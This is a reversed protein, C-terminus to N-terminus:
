WSTTPSEEYPLELDPSERGCFTVREFETTACGFAEITVDLDVARAFRGKALLPSALWSSLPPDGPEMIQVRSLIASHSRGPRWGRWSPPESPVTTLVYHLRPRGAPDHVALAAALSDSDSARDPAGFLFFLRSERREGAVVTFSAFVASEGLTAEELRWSGEPLTLRLGDAPVTARLFVPDDYADDRILWARLTAKTAAAGDWVLRVLAPEGPSPAGSDFLDRAGLRAFPVFDLTVDIPEDGPLVAIRAPVDFPRPDAFAVSGLTAFRCRLSSGAPLRRAVDDRAALSATAARREEPTLHDPLLHIAAPAHWAPTDDWSLRPDDFARTDPVILAAAWLESLEVDVVGAAAQAATVVLDSSDFGNAGVHLRLPQRALPVFSARGEDDTVGDFTLLRAFAADGGGGAFWEAEEAWPARAVVHAGAIAVRRGSEGRRFVNVGLRQASQLPLEITRGRACFAHTGSPVAGTLPLLAAAHGGATALIWPLNRDLGRPPEALAALGNRDTVGFAISAGEAALAQATAAARVPVHALPAGTKADTVHFRLWPDGGDAPTTSTRPGVEERTAADAPLPAEPVMATAPAPLTGASVPTRIAAPVLPEPGRAGRLEFWAVLAVGTLAAALALLLPAGRRRPRASARSERRNAPVEM